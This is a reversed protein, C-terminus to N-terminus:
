GAGAAQPPAGAEALAKELWSPEIEGFRRAVEQGAADYVVTVPLGPARLAVRIRADPDDRQEYTVGTFDLLGAASDREDQTAVGVFRVAGERAIYAKELAPMERVCPGCWSAWLNLVTPRGDGAALSRPSGTGLCPLELDPLGTLRAGQQLPPCQRQALGALARASVERQAAAVSQENLGGQAGACASLALVGAALM